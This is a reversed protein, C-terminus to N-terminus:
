PLNDPDIGLERLRQTLIAAKAEAEEARQHETEARQHETEARQHETEARQHETEARQRETEARQREQLAAEEPTPILVGHQNFYRLRGEWIGLYLNLEQSWRWGNEELAIAQYESGVLRFGEFENTEPSFWFYEPTRFQNQYLQKKLGRDVNATSDSLLEIILDPYRGNEEWVVWSTRSRKDTDKVLFFDPGRFDKNRLQQRSFYVTLNAGIFFDNKDRWLWELCTVLMLLQMYHLSSEMEPEDSLLQTADPLFKEFTQANLAM